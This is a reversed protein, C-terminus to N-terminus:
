KSLAEDAWDMFFDMKEVARKTRIEDIMRENPYRIEVSYTSLEDAWDMMEETIEMGKERLLIARIQQLLFGIDHKKPLGGQSGLYVLVAKVAKEVAQSCHYCIIELRKPYYDGYYLHHVLDRDGVAYDMWLAAEEKRAQGPETKSKPDRDRREEM